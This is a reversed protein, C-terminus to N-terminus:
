KRSEGVYHIGATAAILGIGVMVWGWVPFGKETEKLLQWGIMVNAPIIVEEVAEIITDFTVDTCRFSIPLLCGDQKLKGLTIALSDLEEQSLLRNLYLRLEGEENLKFLSASEALGTIDNGVHESIVKNM